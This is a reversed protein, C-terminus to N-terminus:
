AVGKCLERVGNSHYTIRVSERRGDYGVREILTRLLRSPEEIAMVKWVEEFNRLRQGVTEDDLRLREGRTVSERLGDAKRQAADIKDRLMAERGPDKSGARALQSRANRLIINVEKLEKRQQDLEAMLRLRAASAAV